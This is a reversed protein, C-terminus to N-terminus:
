MKQKIEENEVDVEEAEVQETYETHDMYQQQSAYFERSLSNKYVMTSQITVHVHYEARVCVYCIVYM